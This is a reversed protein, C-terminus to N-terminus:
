FFILCFFFFTTTEIFLIILLPRPDRRPRINFHHKFFSFDYYCGSKMSKCTPDKPTSDKTCLGSKQGDDNYKIIHSSEQKKKRKKKEGGVMKLSHRKQLNRM